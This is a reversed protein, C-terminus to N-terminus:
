KFTELAASAFVWSLDHSSILGKRIFRLQLAAEAFNTRPPKAADPQKLRWQALSPRVRGSVEQKRGLIPRSKSPVSGM